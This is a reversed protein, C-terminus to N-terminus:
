CHMWSVTAHVQRSTELLAQLRAVQQQLDVIDIQPTVPHHQPPAPM